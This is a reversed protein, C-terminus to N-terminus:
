DPNSPVVPVGQTNWRSRKGAQSYMRSCNRSKIVETTIQHHAWKVGKIVQFCRNQDFFPTCFGIQVMFFLKAHEMSFLSVCYRLRQGNFCDNMQQCRHNKSYLYEIFNINQTMPHHHTENNLTILLILM